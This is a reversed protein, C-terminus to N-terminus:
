MQAAHLSISEASDPSASTHDWRRVERGAGFADLWMHSNEMGFYMHQYHQYKKFLHRAVRLTHDLNQMGAQANLLVSLGVFDLRTQVIQSRSQVIIALCIFLPFSATFSANLSSKRSILPAAQETSILHSIIVSIDSNARSRSHPPTSPVATAMQEMRDFFVIPSLRSELYDDPDVARLPPPETDSPRDLETRHQSAPLDNKFSPASYPYSLPFSETAFGTGTTLTSPGDKEISGSHESHPEGTNNITKGSGKATYYSGSGSEDRELVATTQLVKGSSSSWDTTNQPAVSNSTSSVSSLDTVNQSPMGSTSSVSPLDPTNQSPLGTSKSSADTSKCSLQLAGAGSSVSSMDSMETPNKPSGTIHVSNEYLESESHSMAKAQIALSRVSGVGPPSIRECNPDTYSRRRIPTSFSSAPRRYAESFSADRNVEGKPSPSRLNTTNSHVTAEVTHTAASGRQSSLQSILSPDRSFQQQQAMSVTASMTHALPEASYPSQMEGFVQQIIDNSEYTMFGAWQSPSPNPNALLDATANFDQGLCASASWVVELLHFSDMFTFERRCEILVMGFFLAFADEQINNSLYSYLQPDLVECIHRLREIKNLTGECWLSFNMKIRELMASFCIYADDERQMVYLIPSLLDTMGQTYSVGEHELTYILIINVLKQVNDEEAPEEDRSNSNSAYFPEGPDTRLADRKISDRLRRVQSSM